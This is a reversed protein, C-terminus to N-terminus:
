QNSLYADKKNKLAHDLAKIGAGAGTGGGTTITIIVVDGLENGRFMSLLRALWLVTKVLVM